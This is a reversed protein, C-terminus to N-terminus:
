PTSLEPASFRMRPEQEALTRLHHFGSGVQGPHHADSAASFTMDRRLMEELLWPAPYIGSCGKRLLSTNCEMAVGARAARDLARCALDREGPLPPRDVARYVDPHSMVQFFGSSAADGWAQWYAELIETEEAPACRIVFRWGTGQPVFHVSGLRLDWSHAGLVRELDGEHGRLWDLELGVGISLRGQWQQALSRIEGHYDALEALAMRHVRDTKDDIPAHDTFVIHELGAEVAALAYARPLGDAHGCRPTHLHHDGRLGRDAAMDHIETQCGSM